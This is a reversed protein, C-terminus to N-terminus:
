LSRTNCFYIFGYLKRISIGWTEVRYRCVISVRMFIIENICSCSRHVPTLLVACLITKWHLRTDVAASSVDTSVVLQCVSWLATTGCFSFNRLCLCFSILRFGSRHSKAKINDFELIDSVPCTYNIRNWTCALLVANNRSYTYRTKLYFDKQINLVCCKM